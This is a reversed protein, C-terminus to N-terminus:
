SGSNDSSKGRIVRGGTALTAEMLVAEMQASTQPKKPERSFDLLFDAIEYQQPRLKDDRVSNAITSAILAAQLDSREDGFPELTNYALWYKFETPSVEKQM